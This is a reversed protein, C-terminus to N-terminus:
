DDGGFIGRFIDGVVSGIGGGEGDGGTAGGENGGFLGAQEDSIFGDDGWQNKGGGGGVGGAADQEWWNGGQSPPPSAETPDGYVNSGDSGPAAPPPVSGADAPPPTSGGFGGMGPIIIPPAMGGGGTPAPAPLGGGGGGGMVMPIPLFGGHKVEGIVVDDPTMVKISSNFFWKVPRHIKLVVNGLRDLIVANLARRTRMVQRLIAGTFKTDEEAIFGVNNGLVDKIAYKNAQEYGILVNMMELQRGVLLCPHMLVSAAGMSTTLVREDEEPSGRRPEPPLRVPIAAIALANADPQPTAASADLAPLTPNWGGASSPQIANPQHTATETPDTRKPPIRLPQLPRHPTLIGLRNDTTFVDRVVTNADIMCDKHKVLQHNEDANVLSLGPLNEHIFNSKLPSATVALREGNEPAATFVGSLTAAAVANKQPLVYLSHEPFQWTQMPQSHKRLDYVQMKLDHLGVFVYNEQSQEYDLAMRYVGKNINSYCCVRASGQSVAVIDSLTIAHRRLLSIEKLFREREIRFKEQEAKLTLNEKQLAELEQKVREKEQIARELSATDVAVVEAAFLHRVDKLKAPAGEAADAAPVDDVETEALSETNDDDDDNSASDEAGGPEDDEVVIVDPAADM